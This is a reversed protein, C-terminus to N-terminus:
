RPQVLAVIDLHYDSYTKLKGHAWLIVRPGGPFEPIVPRLNDASSNSTLAEWSWTKGADSTAGQFMEWHRQGDASSILSEGTKPDANTSIVVTNPDHPDLAVLGTYDDEGAYLKTGAYAMPYVGWRDGDWRGYYYRHDFGGEGRRRRSEGGDVQVSFAIYPNGTSDVRIDCAWAVHDADGQFVETFDSPELPVENISPTALKGGDSSFLSGAKYYGHYISNDYARPHDDTAIFHVSDRGNGAYCVYPRRGDMGTYRPDSVLDDRTRQMLRWGYQWTAGGDDSINCNPNYGRGRHFNIIRNNEDPLRYVNSYTYAAGVDFTQEDSWTGIDGPRVTARWRQLSDNGHKGYVALLRGDDLVCLGAVAHDDRRLKAHLMQHEISKTDPAFATAVLDGADWAGHDDGAITTFFVKGQRGVARQGQFWCWGGNEKVVTPDVAHLRSTSLLGASVFLFALTTSKIM